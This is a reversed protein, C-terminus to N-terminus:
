GSGSVAGYETPLISGIATVVLASYRGPLYNCYLGIWGWALDQSEGGRLIEEDDTRHARHPANTLLKLFSHEVLPLVRAQTCDSSWQNTPDRYLM